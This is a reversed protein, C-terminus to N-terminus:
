GNIIIVANKAANDGGGSANGECGSLKIEIESGINNGDRAAAIGVGNIGIGKLFHEVTGGGDGINAFKDGSDAVGRFIGIIGDADEIVPSNGDRNHRSIAVSGCQSM